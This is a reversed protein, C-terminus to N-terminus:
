EGATHSIKDITVDTIFRNMTIFIELVKAITYTNTKIKIDSMEGQIKM